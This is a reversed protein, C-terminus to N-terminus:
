FPCEDVTVDIPLEYDFHGESTVLRLVSRGSIRYSSKLEEGKFSSALTKKATFKVQAWSKKQLRRVPSSLFHRNEFPPFDSDTRPCERGDQFLQWAKSCYFYVAEIEASTQQSDNLLDIKFEVNGEAWYKTKNLDGSLKQLKV